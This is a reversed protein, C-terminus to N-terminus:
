RAAEWVMHAIQPLIIEKMALAVANRSGPISIVIKGNCLGAVARSMIAAPGIEKYSLYRFIEGFGPLTKELISSVAEFSGDRKSIGTGGNIIVAQTGEPANRVAETILEREDRLIKKGIVEHGSERLMKLILAGSEDTDENRTDSVTIILVRM